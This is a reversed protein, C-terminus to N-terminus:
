LPIPLQPRVYLTQMSLLKKQHHIINTGDISANMMPFEQIAKICASVIIPTYTLKINNRDLFANKKNNRMNVINSVDVESTTYVHASINKSQVMHEAIKTRVRDMQEVSDKLNNMGIMGNLELLQNKINHLSKM